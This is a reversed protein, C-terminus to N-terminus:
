KIDKFIIKSIWIKLYSNKKIDWFKLYNKFNINKKEVYVNLLEQINYLFLKEIKFVFFFVIIKIKIKIKFYFYYYGKNQM